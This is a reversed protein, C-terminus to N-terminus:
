EDILKYLLKIIIKMDPNNDKKTYRGVMFSGACRLTILMLIEAIIKRKEKM